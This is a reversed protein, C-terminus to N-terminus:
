YTALRPINAPTLTESGGFQNLTGQGLFSCSHTCDKTCGNMENMRCDWVKFLTCHREQKM